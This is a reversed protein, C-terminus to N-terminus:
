TNVEPPPSLPPTTMDIVVSFIFGAITFGYRMGTAWLKTLYTPLRKGYLRQRESAVKPCSLYSLTHNRLNIVRFDQTLPAQVALNTSWIKLRYLPKEQDRSSIDRWVEGHVGNLVCFAVVSYFRRRDFFSEYDHCSVSRHSWGKVPGTRSHEPLCLKMMRGAWSVVMNWWGLRECGCSFDWDPSKIMAVTINPLSLPLLALM